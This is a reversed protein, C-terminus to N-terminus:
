RQLKNAHKLRNKPKEPNCSSAILSVMCGYVIPSGMCYSVTLSVMCYSVICSGVPGVTYCSFSSIMHVSGIDLSSSQACECGAAAACPHLM